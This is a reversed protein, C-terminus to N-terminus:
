ICKIYLHQNHKQQNSHNCSKEQIGSDHSPEADYVSNTGYVSWTIEPQAYLGSPIHYIGCQIEFSLAKDKAHVWAISM